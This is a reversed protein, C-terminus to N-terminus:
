GEEHLDYPRKKWHRRSQFGSNTEPVDVNFDMHHVRIKTVLLLYLINCSNRTVFILTWWKSKLTSAGSVFEPKWLQQWQFFLGYSKCSSPLPQHEAWSWKVGDRGYRRRHVFPPGIKPTRPYYKYYKNQLWSDGRFNYWLFHGLAM